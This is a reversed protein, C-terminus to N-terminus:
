PCWRRPPQPRRRRSLRRVQFIALLLGLVLLLSIHSGVVTMQGLGFLLLQVLLLVLGALLDVFVLVIALLDLM